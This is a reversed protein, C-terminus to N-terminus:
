RLFWVALGVVAAAALGAVARGVFKRRQSAAEQEAAILPYANYFQKVGSRRLQAAMDYVFMSAIVVQAADSKEALFREFPVIPTGSMEGSKENDIFGVVVVDPTRRLAASVIRGGEGAGFVYVKGASPLEAATKVVIM